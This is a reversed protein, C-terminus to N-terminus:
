PEALQKGLRVGTRAYGIREYFEQAATRHLASTVAIRAAGRERAWDEARRVLAAGVGRGRAREAVVLATLWAVPPNSHITRIVHATVLGVVTGDLEAVCAIANGDRELAALRAPLEKADAPYGLESLLGGLAAADSVRAARVHPARARPAASLERDDV